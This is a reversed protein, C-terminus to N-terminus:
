STRARVLLLAVDDEPGDARDLAHLMAAGAPELPGGAHRSLAVSLDVLGTDLDRTRDEVLGDSFLALVAGAPVQHVTETFAGRGAGLPPSPPAPLSAVEGAPLRLLPWLHGANALRLKGSPVDYVGYLCTV